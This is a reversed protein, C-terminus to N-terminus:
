IFVGPVNYVSNSKVKQRLCWKIFIFRQFKTLHSRLHLFILKDPNLISLQLLIKTNGFRYFFFMCFVGKLSGWKNIVIKKLSECFFIHNFGISFSWVFGALISSPFTERYLFVSKTKTVNSHNIRTQSMNLCIIM